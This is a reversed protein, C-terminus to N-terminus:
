EFAGDQTTALAMEKQMAMEEQTLMEEHTLMVCTSSKTKKIM